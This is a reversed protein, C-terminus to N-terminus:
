KILWGLFHVGHWEGCCAQDFDANLFGELNPIMTSDDRVGAKDEFTNFATLGDSGMLLCLTLFRM